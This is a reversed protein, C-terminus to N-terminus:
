FFLVQWLYATALRWTMTLYSLTFISCYPRHSVYCFFLHEFANDWNDWGVYVDTPTMLMTLTNEDSSSCSAQPCRLGHALTVRTTPGTLCESCSSYCANRVNACIYIHVRYNVSRREYRGFKSFLVHAFRSIWNLLIANPLM